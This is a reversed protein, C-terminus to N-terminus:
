LLVFLAWLMLCLISELKFALILLGFFITFALISWVIFVIGNYANKIKEM